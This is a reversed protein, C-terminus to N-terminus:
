RLRSNSEKVSVRRQKRTIEVVSVEAPPLNKLSNITAITTNLQGTAGDVVIGGDAYGSYNSRRPYTPRMRDVRSPGGALAVDHQSWVVEGKHVIGAPQYKGGHGTYGGEAFGINNIRAVNALGAAITVAATAFSIPPGPPNRLAYNAAAYTSAIAEATATIKFLASQEGAFTQALISAANLYLATADLDMQELERRLEFQEINKQRISEFYEDYRKQDSELRNELANVSPLGPVFEEIGSSDAGGSRRSRIRNENQLESNKEKLIRLEENELAIVGNLAETRKGESDERIDAIEFEVQKILKQLELNESDFAFIVKLQDLREQQIRVLESERANVFAEVAKAAALRENFSKTQDDRIRRQEEALQLQDKAFRQADLEAIEIEQLAQKADAVVGTTAALAPSLNFILQNTLSSIIGRGGSAGVLRALQNGFITYASGLQNTARELDRAGAASSAYAAGLATVIGVAATAPNAFSALKGSLDGVSVGAINIQKASEAFEQSIKKNSDILKDLQTKVGTVSKQVNNYESQQKKLIGELRVSESAYEDLTINGQKYAKNLEQQEQKLTIISRKTRELEQIASGQEVQFDLVVTEKETAM